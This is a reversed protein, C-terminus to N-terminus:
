QLVTVTDAGRLKKKLPSDGRCRCPDYRYLSDAPVFRLRRAFPNRRCMLLNSMAPFLIMATTPAVPAWPPPKHRATRSFASPTYLTRARVLSGPEPFALSSLAIPASTTAASMSSRSLRFFANWQAWATKQTVGYQSCRDGSLSSACALFM